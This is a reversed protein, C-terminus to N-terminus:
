LAHSPSSRYRSVSSFSPCGKGFSDGPSSTTIVSFLSGTAFSARVSGFFCHGHLAPLALPFIWMAGSKSSGSSSNLSYMSHVQEQVGMRQKPKEVVIRLQDRGRLREDFVLRVPLVDAHGGAPFDSDLGAQLLEVEAFRCDRKQSPFQRRVPEFQQPDLQGMRRENLRQRRMVFIWEIAQQDGVPSRPTPAPKRKERGFVAQGCGRHRNGPLW